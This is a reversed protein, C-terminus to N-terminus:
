ENETEIVDTGSHPPVDPRLDFGGQDVVIDLRNERNHGIVLVGNELGTRWHSVEPPADASPLIEAPGDGHVAILVEVNRVVAAQDSESLFTFEEPLCCCKM